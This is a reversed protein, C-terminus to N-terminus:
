PVTGIITKGEVCTMLVIQQGRLFAPTLDYYLSPPFSHGCRAYSWTALYFSAQVNNFVPPAPLAPDDDPQPNTM